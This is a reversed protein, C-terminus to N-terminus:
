TLRKLLEKVLATEPAGELTKYFPIGELNEFTTFRLKCNFCQRRRKIAFGQRDPRSDLVRTEGLCKKCKMIM